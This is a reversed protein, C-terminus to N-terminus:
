YESCKNRSFEKNRHSLLTEIPHNENVCLIMYCRELEIQRGGEVESRSNMPNDLFIDNRKFCWSLNHSISIWILPPKIKSINYCLNFVRHIKKRWIICSYNICAKCLMKVLCLRNLKYHILKFHVLILGRCM